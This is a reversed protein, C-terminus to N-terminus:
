EYFSPAMKLGDRADTPKQGDPMAAVADAVSTDWLRLLYKEAPFTLQL